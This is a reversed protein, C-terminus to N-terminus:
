RHYAWLVFDHLADCELYFTNFGTCRAMISLTPRSFSKLRELLKRFPASNFQDLGQGAEVRDFSGEENFQYRGVLALGLSPAQHCIAQVGFGSVEIKKVAMLRLAINTPLNSKSKYRCKITAFVGLQHMHSGNRIELTQQYSFVAVICTSQCQLGINQPEGVRVVVNNYGPRTNATLAEWATSFCKSTLLGPWTRDVVDSLCRVPSARNCISTCARFCFHSDVIFGASRLSSYCEATRLLWGLDQADGVITTDDIYGQVSLVGPIRNLYTFLPDM